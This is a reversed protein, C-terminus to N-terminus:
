YNVLLEMETFNWKFMNNTNNNNNIILIKLRLIVEWEVMRVSPVGIGVLCVSNEVKPTILANLYLGDAQHTVAAFPV